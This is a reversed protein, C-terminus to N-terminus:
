DAPGFPNAPAVAFAFAILGAQLRSELALKKLISAVHSKATRETIELRRAIDQNSLGSGLLHLVEMERPSLDRLRGSMGPWPGTRPLDPRGVPRDAFTFGNSNGWPGPTSRPETLLTLDALVVDAQGAYGRAADLDDATAVIVAAPINRVADVLVTMSLERDSVVVFRM